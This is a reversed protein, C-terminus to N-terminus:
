GVHALMTELHLATCDALAELHYGGELLSVVRGQSHVDAVRLVAQTLEQYDEVELGLSGVPDLRHADFGASVIVLQPRVKDALQELGSTFAKCFESRPTGYAIPLNVVKGLGPGSGTEDAAGTGPYFPYRHISLFAAQGDDYLIDQTGNGHHVDWDVVLVRELGLERTATRAALAANAFLCFGMPANALAHHGPPRVLCLAQRDEGRVVREVADCAAGAGLLAADSSRPSVVTDVEIRGGGRRAFEAVARAYDLGHARALREDSIPQWTPRTTRAILGREELKAHISRLRDPCEPHAGTEHALFLDDAYLLM